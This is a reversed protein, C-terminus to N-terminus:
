TGREGRDPNYQLRCGVGCFPSLSSEPIHPDTETDSM